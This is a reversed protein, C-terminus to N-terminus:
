YPDKTEPDSAILRSIERLKAELAGILEWNSKALEAHVWEMSEELFSKITGQALRIQVEKPFGTDTDVVTAVSNGGGESGPRQYVRYVVPIEFSFAGDMVKRIIAPTIQNNNKTVLRVLETLNGKHVDCASVIAIYEAAPTPVEVYSGADSFTQVVAPSSVATIRWSEGKPLSDTQYNSWGVGKDTSRCVGTSRCVFCTGSGTGFMGDVHHPHIWFLVGREVGVAM